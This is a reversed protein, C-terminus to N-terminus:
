TTEQKERFKHNSGLKQLSGHLIYPLKKGCEDASIQCPKCTRVYTSLGTLNNEGVRWSCCGIATNNGKYLGTFLRAM